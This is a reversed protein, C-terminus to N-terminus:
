NLKFEFDITTVVSVPKGDFVTPAYRWKRVAESAAAGLLPHGSLVKVSDVEGGPKLIVQVRVRGVIKDRRALTPYAPRPAFIAKDKMESGSVSVASNKDWMLKLRGFFKETNARGETIEFPQVKARLTIVERQRRLSEELLKQQLEYRYRVTDFPMAWPVTRESQTAAFAGPDAWCLRINGSITRLKLVEGGGNVAAAARIPRSVSGAGGYSLKLSFGPDAEIRHEHPAEITADITVPLDRPIFVVIDGQGSLLQSPGLLKGEPGAPVLFATIPGSATSAKIGGQMRTLSISGGNSEIDAPGTVKLIGINGGGTRARIAGAAEGFDIRGGGTNATVQSGPHQLFINGGGSELQATGRVSVVRIHGGGTRIVADGDITGTNIHGGGTFANLDGHVLQVTIHGGGQTELRSPGNVEGATLNGGATVLSIRGDVSDTEINGAQTFVDLSTSRPVVVDFSVWLRGRLEPSSVAGSLVAGDPAPKATLTFLKLLKQAEAGSGSTEVRVRYAIQQNESSQIRVSGVDTNLRLRQGTRVPLTGSKEEAVRGEAAPSPRVSYAAEAQQPEPEPECETGMTVQSFAPAAFLMAALTALPIIRFPPIHKM